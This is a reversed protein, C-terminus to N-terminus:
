RTYRAVTLTDYSAALVPGSGFDVAGDYFGAMVVDGNKDVRVTAVLDNPWGEPEVGKDGLAHVWVAEGHQDLKLLFGDFESQATVPCVGVDLTKQFAGGVVVGGDETAAVDWPSDKGLGGIRREWLLDGSPSIAVVGVDLDLAGETTESETLIGSFPVAAFVIGDSRVDVSSPFWPFTSSGFVHSWALAGEEDLQVVFSTQQLLPGVGGLNFDDGTKGTVVVSGDPALAARWPFASCNYDRSWVHNGNADLESYFMRPTNPPAHIVSGGEPWALTGYYFGILVLDGNPRVVVQTRHALVSDSGVFKSWLHSGDDGQLKVVVNRGNEDLPELFGGGFDVKDRIYATLLVDDNADVALSIGYGSPAPSFSRAWVFKGQPDLKFAFIGPDLTVKGVTFPGDAWGTVVVSGDSFLASHEPRQSGPGEFSKTWLHAGVRGDCNEDVADNGCEVGPLVQGECPGINAGNETVKREGAKCIGVGETNEPGEYCAETTDPIVVPEPDKEPEPEKEPEAGKKPEDGKVLHADGFDIAVCALPSAGLMLAVLSLSRVRRM